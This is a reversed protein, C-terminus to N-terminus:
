RIRSMRHMDLIIGDPLLENDIGVSIGSILDALYRSTIYALEYSMLGLIKGAGVADAAFQERVREIVVERM